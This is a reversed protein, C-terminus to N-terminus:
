LRIRFARNSATFHLTDPNLSRLVGTQQYGLSTGSSVIIKTLRPPAKLTGQVLPKRGRIILIDPNATDLVSSTVVPTLLISHSKTKLLVPRNDNSHNKARLGFTSCHKTVEPSITITDSWLALDRGTRIGVISQGSSNYVILESSSRVYIQKVTGATILCLLAALPVVAPFPRKKLVFLLFIFITITLLIAEVSTMGINDITSLPLSAAKATLYETLGTVFGILDALPYSIFDLPYILPLMCGAVIVISSIPVIVINSLIFWTPFRNFLMVTLALTGTQAIVSVAASQWILDPIRKKLHIQRYLDKYFVIIFTVASYSLLFGADFVVSPRIMILVFASALISNVPNVPRKMLTATQLFTFMLTARLVSPTLGTVFAFVWLVMLAASIRLIRLRGKLFFLIRLVFLSLIMAHLGSVAMIHMIGAKIFYQKQEPDLMNKQGMTIAAVLALRDGSLGRERFMEIIRHRILLARHTLKRRPPAKHQLVDNSDTFAVYRIGRNEMYFQYDFECPNGRNEIKRPMCRVTLKDGPLWQPPNGEKRHYILLGGKLHQITDDIIGSQLRLVIKWTKDKEEPYGSVYGSFLSEETSLDPISAKELTYLLLGCLFMAQIFVFGYLHNVMRKNFTVSLIFGAITIIGALIFFIKGPHIFYGCIIGACLAFGIRLFPIERYLM